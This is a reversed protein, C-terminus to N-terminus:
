KLKYVKARGVIIKRIMRQGELFALETRIWSISKKIKRQIDSMCLGDKNGELLELIISNQQSTEKM